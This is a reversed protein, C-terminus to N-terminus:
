RRDNCRTVSSPPSATVPTWVSLAVDPVLVISMVLAITGVLVLGEVANVFEFPIFEAHRKRCQALRPRRLEGRCGVAACPNM